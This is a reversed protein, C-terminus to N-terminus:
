VMKRFCDSQHSRHRTAGHTCGNVGERLSVVGQAGGGVVVTVTASGTGAADSAACQLVYVGDASFQAATDAANADLFTVTGPGSLASWTVM